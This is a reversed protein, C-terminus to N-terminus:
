NEYQETYWGLFNKTPIRMREFTTTRIWGFKIPEGSNEDFAYAVRRWAGDRTRDWMLLIYQGSDFRHVPTMDDTPERYVRAGKQHTIEAIPLKNGAAQQTAVYHCAERSALQVGIASWMTQIYIGAIASFILLLIYKLLRKAPEPLSEIVQRDSEIKEPVANLYNGALIYAAQIQNDTIEAIEVSVNNLSEIIAAQDIRMEKSKAKPKVGAIKKHWKSEATTFSMFTKQLSDFSDQLGWSGSLSKYHYARTAFSGLTDYAKKFPDLSDQIDKSISMLSSNDAWTAYAMKFSDFSDQMGKPISMSSYNDAWTAANGFYKTDKMLSDLSDQMGKPISMSSYNDAWTAANGFYKTDRMLSDLSDQMSRLGAFSQFPETLRSLHDITDFMKQLKTMESRAGPHNSPTLSLKVM